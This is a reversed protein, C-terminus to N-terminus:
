AQETQKQETIDNGSSLSGVIDGNSDKLVANHWAIIRKTGNKRLVVNEYYEIPEIAGAMLQHYVTLVEKQFREPVCTKVWNKGVLEERQYGLIELGYENILTINGEKDLAVFLVRAISLYKQAQYDSNHRFVQQELEKVRRELAEYSLKKKM